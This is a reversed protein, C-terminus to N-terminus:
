SFLLSFRLTKIVLTLLVVSRKMCRALTMSYTQRNSTQRKASIRNKGMRMGISRKRRAVNEKRRTTTVVM